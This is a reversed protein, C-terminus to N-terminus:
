DVPNEELKIDRFERHVLDLSDPDCLNIERERYPKEISGGHAWLCDGTLALGIYYM